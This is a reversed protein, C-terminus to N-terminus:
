YLKDTWEKVKQRFEELKDEKEIDKASKKAPRLTKGLQSTSNLATKTAFNSGPQDLSSNDAVQKQPSLGDSEFANSDQSNNAAKKMTLAAFDTDATLVRCYKLDVKLM